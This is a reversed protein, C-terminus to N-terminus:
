PLSFDNIACGLKPASLECFFIIRKAGTAVIGQPKRSFQEPHPKPLLNFPAEQSNFM